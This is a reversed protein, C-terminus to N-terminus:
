YAFASKGTQKKYIRDQRVVESHMQKGELYVNLHIDGGGSGGSEAMAEKFAQKMTSLPSVVETERTNDGLIAMFEGYNAPVVTGTALKPIQPASVEKLNFGVHGGGLWGPLDFSISNIAKIVVNIGAVIGKIMGNIIDIIANIPAKVFGILAEFIGKFITQVGTWAKKWDGTFVGSLFQIVGKLTTIIGSIIDAIGGFLSGFARVIGALVQAIPPGLKEVFWKVLPMIFKNYIDLAGTILEGVFDLFNALLPQLHKTWVEDVTEMLADWAPKLITEWITKFMDSVTKITEKFADFIPAGWKDWFEKLTNMLDIWIGSILEIAPAVADQWLMDFISKAEEFLTGFLDVVKTVIDTITPLVVSIFNELIPFVALNWIDSFIMLFTDFLGSVINGITLFVQQLLPVFSSTFYDLIPQALTQLDSFVGIFIEKFALLPGQMGIWANSINDKNTMLWMSFINLSDTIANIGEIIAAGTWTALPKLFNDWLWIAYPQFVILLANLVRISAALMDLFAPILKSITWKGLPILVNDYFWKLGKGVNEAFPKFAEKLRGLAEITPQLLEKFAAVKDLIKSDIEVDEFMNKPSPAEYGGGAGSDDGINNLKDIPSLAKNAEKGTKKLSAAYDIQADKAKTFTKAGTLFAAFFQGITSIAASLYGILTKLIPTVVTLIPAFATAFSNKLTQLSTMLTSIDRNTQKSYQALNQFGEKVASIVSRMAMRILMLKFMNSLKLISKTLPVTAKSTDKMSTTVKKASSATKKQQGDLEALRQKYTNVKDTLATYKEQMDAYQTTDKGLTFAKGSETLDDLEGKVSDITGKLQELDYQMGKFAKSDAKGGTSLFKDQREKLADYKKTTEDLQKKIETYEGTPIQKTELSSMESKLKEIAQETSKISSEVRSINSSTGSFTKGIENGTKNLSTLVSSLRNKLTSTGKKFGEDDIKTDFRLTGDAM